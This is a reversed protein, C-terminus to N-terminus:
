KGVLYGVVGTSGFGLRQKLGASLDFTRGSHFPGRDKVAAEVVKGGLYFKIKTGCPLTRHAVHVSGPTMTQGCATRSGYFGPGYYSANAGEFVNMKVTRSSAVAAEDGDVHLRLKKTGSRRATWSIRFKGGSTTRASGVKHLRGKTKVALSVRRGATGPRVIGKLTVRKGVWVNLRSKQRRLSARVKIRREYLTGKKESRIRVRSTRRLRLSTVYTSDGTAVFKAVNKWQSGVLRELYLMEGDMEASAKGVLKVPQGYTAVRVTSAVTTVGGSIDSANNKNEEDQIAGFANVSGAVVLASCAGALLTLGVRRTLSQM